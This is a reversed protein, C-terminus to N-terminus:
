GKGRQQALERAKRTLEDAHTRGRENAVDQYNRGGTLEKFARRTAPGPRARQTM